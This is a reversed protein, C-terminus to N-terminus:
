KILSGTAKDYDVKSILADYLASLYNTQSEKLSTEANMVELNSGVGQEYKTKATKYIEEALVINKKQIELSALANQLNAKAASAELDISQQIFTLDNEVKLVGLKSQQIRYHKQGGSFIPINIKMGILETPYWVKKTDFIDFKQRYANASFSAYLVMSPLVSLRDKKLQLYAAKKQTELLAYEIRNSYDTKDALTADFQIDNLKDTLTLTATQPMGMQFKLLLYGLSKIRQIKEEEALINNYAVTIRDLEIKEAFGNSYLAQTDDMLKRLRAINAEVLKIREENLLVSYYAKTVAVITEIKTRQTAKRSLEFYTRTAQLGVLYDSNFVLQSAEIGAGSNYQTGFKVGIYSDDPAFPNFIKAPILSTPLEVFNKVDFSGNLQPIGIGIIENVKNKAIQEDLMANKINHHNQLAYDIAQQLSFSYKGTDEATQAFNTKHLLIFIIAIFVQFKKMNNM